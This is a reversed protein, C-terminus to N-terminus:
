GTRVTIQSTITYPSQLNILSGSILSISATGSLVLYQGGISGDLCLLQTGCTVLSGDLCKCVKQVTTTLGPFPTANDMANKVATTDNSVGLAYLMGTNLVTNLQNKGVLIVGLNFAGFSLVLLIPLILAFEVSAAAQNRRVFHLLFKKM